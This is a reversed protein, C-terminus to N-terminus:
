RTHKGPLKYDPRLWTRCNPSQLGWESTSERFCFLNWGNEMLGKLGAADSFDELRLEDFAETECDLVDNDDGLTFERLDKDNPNVALGDSSSATAESVHDLRRLDVMSQKRVGDIIRLGM